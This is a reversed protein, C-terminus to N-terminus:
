ISKPLRAFPLNKGTYGITEMCEHWVDWWKMDQADEYWRDSVKIAGIVITMDKKVDANSLPMNVKVGPEGNPDICYMSTIDPVTMIPEAADNVVRELLLNENQFSIRYYTGERDRDKVTVTGYDFGGHTETKVETVKGVCIRKTQTPIAIDKINPIEEFLNENAGNCSQFLQGIQQCLTITDPCVKNRLQDQNVLWGSIGVMNGFLGCIDRGIKEALVANHPDDLVVSIRDGKEGTNNALAMPTTPCGNVNLLLTELAPVARGAGDADVVPIAGGSKISLLFPFFISFGGLEVPFTYSLKKGEREAMEALLGAANAAYPSFDTGVIAAPAGMGATASAYDEGMMNTRVMTVDPVPLGKGPRCAELLQLGSAISGGGGGGMLTAGWIISKMMTENITRKDEM